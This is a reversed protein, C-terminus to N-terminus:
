FKDLVFYRVHIKETQFLDDYPDMKLDGSLLFVIRETVVEYVVVAPLQTVQGEAVFCVNVLVKYKESIATIELHVGHV